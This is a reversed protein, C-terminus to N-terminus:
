LKKVLGIIIGVVVLAAAVGIVITGVGEASSQAANLSTTVASTDIDAMASGSAALVVAGVGYKRVQNIFKM